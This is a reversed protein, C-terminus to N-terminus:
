IRFPSVFSRNQTTIKKNHKDYKIKTHQIKKYQIKEHQRIKQTTNNVAIYKEQQMKGSINKVTKNKKNYKKRDNGVNYKKLKKKEPNKSIVGIKFKSTTDSQKIITKYSSQAM